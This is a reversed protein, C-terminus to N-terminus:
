YNGKDRYIGMNVQLKAIAVKFLAKWGEVLVVDWVQLLHPLPLVYAFLTM